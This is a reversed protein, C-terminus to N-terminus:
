KFRVSQLLNLFYSNPGWKYTESPMGDYASILMMKNQEKDFIMAFRWAVETEDNYFRTMRYHYPHGNVENRIETITEEKYASAEEDKWSSLYEIFNKDSMDSDFDSCITANALPSELSFIKIKNNPGVEVDQSECSFDEPVKFVSIGDTYEDPGLVVEELMQNKRDENDNFANTVAITLVVIPLIILAGIIYYDLTKRKRFDKPIIEGVQKSFTLYLFWIIGWIVSRIVQPMSGFGTTSEFEGVFLNLLNVTFIVVVYIKAVFVANPQRQNFSYITYGAIFLIMLGLIVDCIALAYSGDYEAVNFTAIPYIASFLGGAGIIFLFFSLWGHISTTEKLYESTLPVETESSFDINSTPVGAIALESNGYYDKSSTTSVKELNIRRTYSDCSTGDFVKEGQCQPENRHKCNECQDKIM